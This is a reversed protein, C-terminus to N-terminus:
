RSDCKLAGEVEDSSMATARAPLAVRQIAIPFFFRCSLLFLLLFASAYISFLLVTIHVQQSARMTSDLDALFFYQEQMRNRRRRRRRRTRRPRLRRESECRFCLKLTSIVYIPKHALRNKLRADTAFLPIRSHELSDLYEAETYKWKATYMCMFGKSTYVNPSRRRGGM